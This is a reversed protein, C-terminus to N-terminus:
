GHVCGLGQEVIGLVPGLTETRRWEQRHAPLLHILEAPIRTIDDDHGTIGIDVMRRKTHRDDPPQQFGLAKANADDALRIPLAFVVEHLETLWIQKKADSGAVHVRHDIAVRSVALDSRVVGVRRAPLGSLARISRAQDVALAALFSVGVGRNHEAADFCRQAANGM